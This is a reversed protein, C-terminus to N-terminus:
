TTREIFEQHFWRTSGDVQIIEMKIKGIKTAKMPKGNGVTIEDDITKVEYMGTDDNTMHCSAGTDGIWTDKTLKSGDAKFAFENDIAALVHETAANDTATNASDPKGNKAWCNAERHGQKGCHNCKGRFKNKGSGNNSNGKGNGEKAKDPCQFAKHGQKGCHNCNGKFGGAFLGVDGDNSNSGAKPYMKLYKTKLRTQIEETTLPDDVDGLRKELDNIVIEYDGPVNNLIHMFFDKDTMGNYDQLEMQIRLDELNTIWEEPDAKKSLKSNTFEEELALLASISKTAYKQCLKKWALAASGNKLEKTKSL